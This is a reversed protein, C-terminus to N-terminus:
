SARRATLVALAGGGDGRGLRQLASQYARDVIARHRGQAMANWGMVELDAATPSFAVVPTGAGRVAAAERGLRLRMYTRAQLASSVSRVGRAAGMPASVVVLDLDLGALLDANTTSHAGGDIYREGGIHVPAYYGPIACSAAVASGVDSPPADDQGFVVRAGDRLRVTPLWLARAPWGSPHARNVTGIMPALSQRGAPLLASAMATLRVSGPRTVGRVLAGVSAPTFRGSEVPPQRQAIAGRRLTTVRAPPSGARLAAGVHSGASTGVIVEADRPDWGTADQLARLVGEHFAAGVLGGAGLVLGIRTMSAM